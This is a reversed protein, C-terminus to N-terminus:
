KLSDKELEQMLGIKKKTTNILDILIDIQDMLSNRLTENSLKHACYSNSKAYNHISDCVDSNTSFYNSKMEKMKNLLIERKENLNQNLSILQSRKMENSDSQNRSSNTNLDILLYTIM